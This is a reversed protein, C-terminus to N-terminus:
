QTAGATHASGGFEAFPDTSKKAGGAAPAVVGYRRQLQQNNGVRSNIQSGVAGRIGEISAERQEPSQKAAILGLAQTRSTDSGQGGGMVKSYDDAVGLSLAAYKAIPGSGTSAKIADAVTNFVPIQNQPIDKAAAKLQDLTGGPDTLSKASGFFQALAPSSAIKFDGEAKQANWNPDLKQAATFAQQAFEPKRASILQSPAVDGSVLLKAAANPDGDAIRQEAAKKSSAIALEAGEAAKAQGLLRTARLSTQADPSKVQEKLYGISAPLKDGSFAETPNAEMKLLPDATQANELESKWLKASKDRYDLANEEAGIRNAFMDFNSANIKSLAATVQPSPKALEQLQPLAATLLVQKKAPDSEALIPAAITRLEKLSDDLVKQQDQTTQALNRRFDLINKADAIAAPAPVGAKMQGHVQALLPDDAALGLAAAIRDNTPQTAPDTAFSDPSAWYKQQAQMTQLKIQDMQANTGASTAAAQAEQVQYPALQQRLKNENSMNALSSIKGFQSLLDPQAQPATQLNALSPLQFAM